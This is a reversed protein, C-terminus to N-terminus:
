MIVCKPRGGGGSGDAQPQHQAPDVLGYLMSCLKRWAGGIVAPCAPHAFVRDLQMRFEAFAARMSHALVYRVRLYQWLMVTVLLSGGGGLLLAFPAMVATYIEMSARFRYLAAAQTTVRRALPVVTAELEPRFSRVLVEASRALYLVACVGIPAAAILSPSGGTLLLLAWMVFHSEEDMAVRRAYDKSLQPRGHSRVVAVLQLAVSVQLLTKFTTGAGMPSLFPVATLVCLVLAVFHGALQAYSLAVNISRPVAPAPASRSAARPPAAAEPATKPASDSAAGSQPQPQAQPQPQPEPHAAPIEFSPDVNAKYWKMQKKRLVAAARPGPQVLLRSSYERWEASGEFDYAEFADTMAPAPPPPAANPAAANPRRHRRRALPAFLHSIGLLPEPPTTQSLGRSHLSGSSVM